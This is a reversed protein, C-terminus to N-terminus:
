NKVALAVREIGQLDKVFEPEGWRQDKRFLERLAERQGAGLELALLGGSVLRGVAQPLLRRYIDLGDAGAFLAMQPEWQAVQLELEELTSVYPPNSVIMEFRTDGAEALLDSQVFRIRTRVGHAEANREAIQLAQQSLDLATVFLLPREVALAIAIAGSGTGVDAVHAALAPPLHALAAEVLHETEPRPILVAPTVVFRLGYFEQVGVIYQIPEYKARRALLAQYAERQYRPVITKQNTLLWVHDRDLTHMLLLEADRRPNRSTAELAHAGEIALERVTLDSDEGVRRLSCAGCDPAM